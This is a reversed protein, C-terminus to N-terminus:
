GDMWGDQTNWPAGMTTDIVTSGDRVEVAVYLANEQADYGIRFSGEFDETDRPSVWEPLAIPYRRMGEPWDSLDGDVVIGTVPLAIAVAGNHAEVGCACFLVMGCFVIVVGLFLAYGHRDM